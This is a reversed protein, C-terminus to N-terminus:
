TLLYHNGKMRVINWAEKETLLVSIHQSFCTGLEVVRLGSSRLM